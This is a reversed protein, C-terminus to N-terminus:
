KLIKIFKMLTMKKFINNFNEKKQYPQRNAHLHTLRQKQCVEDDCSYPGSLWDWYVIVQPSIPILIIMVIM